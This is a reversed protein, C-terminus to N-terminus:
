ETTSKRSGQQAPRRRETGVCIRPSFPLVVRVLFLYQLGYIVSGITLVPKWDERLINLCVNGELDINPHYLSTTCKVQVRQLEFLQCHGM